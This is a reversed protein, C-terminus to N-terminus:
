DRRRPTRYSRISNSSINSDNNNNNDNNHNNENNNASQELSKRCIPCTNNTAKWESLCVRHFKHGCPTTILSNQDINNMCIPCEDKLLSVGFGGRRTRRNKRKTRRTLSKRSKAM